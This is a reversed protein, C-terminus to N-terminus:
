ADAMALATGASRDRRAAVAVAVVASFSVGVTGRPVIPTERESAEDRIVKSERGDDPRSRLSASSPRAGLAFCM